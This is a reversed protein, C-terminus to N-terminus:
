ILPQYKIGQLNEEAESARLYLPLLEGWLLSPQQQALLGLTRAHPEDAVNEDRHLLLKLQPDFYNQYTSFGDGCILSKETIYSALNQVRVVSPARVETLQKGDFKYTATYVMNKYANIMPVIPLNAALDSKVFHAQYALNLLSNVGTVPKNFCYSFSKITNLCIRIGTFSGPGIGTAFLDVDNLNKGADALAKEVFQNLVESHSGQRMSEAVALVQNNELVAVSGLLTSTECALVIM